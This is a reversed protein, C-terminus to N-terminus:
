GTQRLRLGQQVAVTGDVGVVEVWENFWFHRRRRLWCGQNDLWVSAQCPCVCPRVVPGPLQTHVCLVSYGFLLTYVATTPYSCRTCPRQQINVAHVRGNNSITYTQRCCSNHFSLLLLLLFFLRQYLYCCCISMQLCFIAHHQCLSM